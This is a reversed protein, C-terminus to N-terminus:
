REHVILTGVTAEAPGDHTHIEIPFQGARVADFTFTVTQGATVEQASVQDDYGHLHLVADREIEFEITVEQDRCVELTSPDLSEGALTATLSVAAADCDEPLTTGPVCGAAAVLTIAALATAAARTPRTM